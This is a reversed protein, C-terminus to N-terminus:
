TIKIVNLSSIHLTTGGAKNVYLSPSTILGDFDNVPDSVIVDFNYTGTTAMTLPNVIPQYIISATSYPDDVIYMYLDPSGATSSVEFIFRYTGVPTNVDMFDIKIMGNLTSLNIRSSLPEINEAGPGWENFNDDFNDFFFSPISLDPNLLKTKQMHIAYGPIDVYGVSTTEIRLGIPPLFGGAGLPADYYYYDTNATSLQAAGLIISGSENCFNLNFLATADDVKLYNHTDGDGAIKNDFAFWSVGVGTSTIRLKDNVISISHNVHISEYNPIGYGARYSRGTSYEGSGIDSYTAIVNNLKIFVPPTGIFILGSWGVGIIDDNSYRRMRVGEAELIIETLSPPDSAGNNRSIGTENVINSSLVGVVEESAIQSWQFKGFTFDLSDISPQYSYSFVPNPTVSNPMDLSLFDIGFTEILEDGNILSLQIIPNIIINKVNRSGGASTSSSSITTLSEYMKRLDKNYNIWKLYRDDGKKKEELKELKKSELQKLIEEITKGIM